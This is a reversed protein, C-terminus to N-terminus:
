SQEGKLQRYFAVGTKHAFLIEEVAYRGAFTMVSLTRDGPQKVVYRGPNTPAEDMPKINDGPLQPGSNARAGFPVPDPLPRTTPSPDRFPPAYRQRQRKM